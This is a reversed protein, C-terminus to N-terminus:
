MMCTCLLINSILPIKYGEFDLISNLDTILYGSSNEENEVDRIITRLIDLVM